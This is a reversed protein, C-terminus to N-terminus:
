LRKYYENIAYNLEMILVNKLALYKRRPECSEKCRKERICRDCLGVRKWQREKM